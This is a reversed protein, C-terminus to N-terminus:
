RAHVAQGGLRRRLIPVPEFTRASRVVRRRTRLETGALGAFVFRGSRSTVWGVRVQGSWRLLRSPVVVAADFLLALM